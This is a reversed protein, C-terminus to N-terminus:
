DVEFDTWNMMAQFFTHAGMEQQAQKGVIDFPVHALGERRQQEIVVVEGGCLSGPRWHQCRRLAGRLRLACDGGFESRIIGRKVAEV